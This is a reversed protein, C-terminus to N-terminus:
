RGFMFLLGAVAVPLLWVFHRSLEKKILAGASMPEKVPVTQSLSDLFCLKHLFAPTSGDKHPFLYPIAQHTMWEYGISEKRFLLAAFGVELTPPRHRSTIVSIIEAMRDKDVWLRCDMGKESLFLTGEVARTSVKIAVTM